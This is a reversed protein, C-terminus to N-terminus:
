QIDNRVMQLQEKLKAVAAEWDSISVADSHLESAALTAARIQDSWEDIKANVVPESMPGNILATRIESYKDTYSAWAGTLKDCAASKQYIEWEGFPFPQCNNSIEGWKDAITTVPNETSINDFANDLDWPILHIKGNPNEYWYFNHPEFNDGYGYWHFAGDDNRISRDVVAYAIIENLDMRSEIVAQLDSGDNEVIADAFHKIRDTTIGKQHNNVLAEHLKRDSQTTGNSTLPWVEKYLNGSPDDYNYNLFSEDIQEILAYLGSYNGNLYVKAHTARATKVGMEKFLWYGLRDHLQSPDLNMSHLQIKKLGYFKDKRGKWDMKIKLSLKTATKYGSPNAFNNGSVGGFFAGVSGKYRIGVPSIVEGRFKVSGEVYAEQAPDSDLYDLAQEPLNIEFTYLEEQDFVVDSSQNLYLEKGSPTIIEVGSSTLDEQNECATIVLILLLFLPLSTRM